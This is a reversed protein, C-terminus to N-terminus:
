LNNNTNEIFQKDIVDMEINQMVSESDNLLRKIKDRLRKTQDRNVIKKKFDRNITEEIESLGHKLMGYVTFYDFFKQGHASKKDVLSYIIKKEIKNYNEIHRSILQQYLSEEFLDAIKITRKFTKKLKMFRSEIRIIEYDNVDKLVDFEKNKRLEIKKDYIVIESMQNKYTITKNNAYYSKEYRSLNGYYSMVDLPNIKTRINTAVDIRYVIGEKFIDFDMNLDLALKRLASEISTRNLTELNNDNWYKSLSGIIFLKKEREYLKLNKLKGKQSIVEGTLRDIEQSTFLKDNVFTDPLLIMIKITDIM